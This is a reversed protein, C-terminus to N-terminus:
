LPKTYMLLLSVALLLFVVIALKTYVHKRDKKEPFAGKYTVYWIGTVIGFVGGSPLYVRTFSFKGFPIGGVIETGAM